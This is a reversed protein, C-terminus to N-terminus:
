KTHGLKKSFIHFKCYSLKILFDMVFFAIVYLKVKNEINIALDIDYRTIIVGLKQVSTCRTMVFLM